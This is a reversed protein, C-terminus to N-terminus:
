AFHVERDSHAFYAQLRSAFCTSAIRRTSCPALRIKSDAFFARFGSACCTSAIGPTSSPVSGVVDQAYHGKIHRRIRQYSISCPDKSILNPTTGKSILNLVSGESKRNRCFSVVFFRGLLCVRRVRKEAPSPFPSLHWDITRCVALLIRRRGSRRIGCRRTRGKQRVVGGRTRANRHGARKSSAGVSGFVGVQVFCRWVWRPACASRDRGTSSNTM